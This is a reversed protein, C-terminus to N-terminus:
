PWEEYCRNEDGTELIGRAVLGPFKEAFWDELFESEFGLVEGIGCCIFNVFFKKLCPFQPGQLFDWITNWDLIGLEDVNALLLDFEVHELQRSKIGGLTAPVWQLYESSFDHEIYILDVETFILRELNTNWSLDIWDRMKVSPDVSHFNFFQLLFSSTKDQCYRGCNLKLTRLSLGLAAM